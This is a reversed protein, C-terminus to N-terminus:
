YTKMAHTKNTNAPYGTRFVSNSKDHNGETEPHFGSLAKFSAV